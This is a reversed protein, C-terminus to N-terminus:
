YNFFIRFFIIVLFMLIAAIFKIGLVFDQNSVEDILLRQMYTFNSIGLTKRVKQCDIIFYHTLFDFYNKRYEMEMERKQNDNLKEYKRKEKKSMIKIDKLNGNEDIIKNIRTIYIPNVLAHNENLLNRCEQLDRKFEESENYNRFYPQLKQFIPDYIETYLKRTYENNKYKPTRKIFWNFIRIISEINM